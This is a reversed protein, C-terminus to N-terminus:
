TFLATIHFYTYLYKKSVKRKIGTSIYESTTESSWTTIRNKIKLKGYCSCWKVNGDATNSPNKNRRTLM